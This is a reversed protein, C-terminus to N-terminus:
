GLKNSSIDLSTIKTKEALVKIGKSSIANDNLSLKTIDPHADLFFVISDMDVDTINCNDMMLLRSGNFKNVQKNIYASGRVHQTINKICTNESAYVATVFFSMTALAISRMM